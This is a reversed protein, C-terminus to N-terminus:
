WKQLFRFTTAEGKLKGDTATFGCGQYAFELSNWSVQEELLARIM